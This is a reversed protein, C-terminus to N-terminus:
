NRMKKKIKIANKKIENLEETMKKKDIENNIKNNEINKELEKRMKKNQEAIENLQQKNRITKEKWEKEKKIELKELEIIKPKISSTLSILTNMSELPPYHFLRRFCESQDKRLLENIWM